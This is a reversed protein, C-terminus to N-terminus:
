SNILLCSPLLLKDKTVVKKKEKKIIIATVILMIILTLSNSVTFAIALSIFGIDTFYVLYIILPLRFITTRLADSIFSPKTLRISSLFSVVSDLIPSVIANLYYINMFLILKDAMDQNNNMAILAFSDRTLIYFGLSFVGSILGLLLTYKYTTIARKFNNNGMCQGIITAGSSKISLAFKMFIGFFLGELGYFTLVFSGYSNVVISNIIVKTLNFAIAGLVIPASLKLIKKIMKKHPKEKIIYMDSKKSFLYIMAPIFMTFQAIITSIALYTSNVNKFIGSFVVITSLLVKTLIVICNNILVRKTDGRAILISSYLTNFLGIILSIISAVYYGYSDHIIDIPTNLLLLFPKGLGIFITGCFLSFTTIIYLLQTIVMRAKTEDERGLYSSILISGGTIISVGISSLLTQIQSFLVVSGANGIGTSSLVFTDYLAYVLDLIYNFFLPLAIVLLIPLIKGHLVKNHKKTLVNNMTIM